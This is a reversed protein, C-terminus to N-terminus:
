SYLDERLVGIYPLTRYDEKYDFGYGVVFEDPIEFGLYDIHIDVERRSPKSLLSCIKLSRPKRLKFLDLIFNMTNGSDIIDEVFLVDRNDINMIIDNNLRVSDSKSGNMGYSGLHMTDIQVPISMKKLLDTAFFMSGKLVIIAVLEEYDSSITAALEAVKQQLSEEDFLIKSIDPHM